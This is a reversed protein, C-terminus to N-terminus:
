GKRCGADLRAVLQAMANDLAASYGDYAEDESGNWNMSAQQSRLTFAPQGGVSASLVVVPIKTGVNQTMYMHLLRVDVVDGEGQPVVGIAAMRERVIATADEVLFLHKGLGGARGTTSRADIVAGQRYACAVKRDAKGVLRSTDMQVRNVKMTCGGLMATALGLALASGAGRVV